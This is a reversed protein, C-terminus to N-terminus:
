PYAFPEPPPADDERAIFNLIEEKGLEPKMDELLAVGMAKMMLPRYRPDIDHSVCQFQAATVRVSNQLLFSTEEPADAKEVKENGDANLKDGEKAADGQENSKKQRIKEEKRTTSLVVAHKGAAKTERKEQQVSKPLAFLSPPANCQFQYKPINLDANLGIFCTPHSALSIMLVYPYWNWYQTFLFMGVTSKAVRHQNRHLSFTCNRGGFDLLGTALICGLKSCLDERADSIKTELLHRYEKVIPNQKETVQVMVLALAIYVGQRVFAVTDDKMEWLADIVKKNGTGAAAVGLALAVGYRVHPNYSEILLKVMDLCMDPNMSSVFGIMIIANRRVDDFTDHVAAMLLRQIAENNQTGAYAMGLVFCGGLRIWPDSSELLATATPLGENERGLQILAIAMMSGRIIKEKQNDEVAVNRLADIATANGSGLMLMGIGVAAAEGGVANTGSLCTFLADYLQEDQLGIAALGIGMSAGHVMYPTTSYKLLNEKIFEIGERSRSIGLPSYIMGLAYLSGAEKFPLVSIPSQPFYSELVKMADETHGRHIVGVAATCMFKAWYNAKGLWALNDRLFGDISTGSYMLASSMVTFTHLISRQHDISRKVHNMIHIDAACRVYLFTRYLSTTVEGCLVSLLREDVEAEEGVLTKLEALLSALFEQDANEFINFALQYAALRSGGILLGHLLNAAASADRLFLLCQTLIYYDAVCSSTTYLEALLQLIERRFTIDRLECAVKFTHHLAKSSNTKISYQMLIRRLFDVRRAHLAFGIMEKVDELTENQLVWSENLAIFLTELRPDLVSDQSKQHQVYQDICRCLITDTFLSRKTSDFAKGAALAFNVSQDFEGLHFYVRSAILAAFQRTEEPVSPSVHIAEIDSLSGSIEHWYTDMLKDLQQLAFTIITNDQEQLLSLTGKASSVGLMAILIFILCLPILLPCM